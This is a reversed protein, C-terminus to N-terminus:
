LLDDSNELCSLPFYLKYNLTIDTFPDYVPRLLLKSLTYVSHFVGHVFILQCACCWDLELDLERAFWASLNASGLLYVKSSEVQPCGLGADM